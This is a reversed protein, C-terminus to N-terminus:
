SRRGPAALHRPWTARGPPAALHVDLQARLSEVLEERQEALAAEDVLVQLSASRQNPQNAAGVTSPSGLRASLVRCDGATSQAPSQGVRAM